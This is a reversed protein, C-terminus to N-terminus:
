ALPSAGEGEEDATLKEFAKQVRKYDRFTLARITAPAVNCLNAFLTVERLEPSSTSSAVALTDEVLPERMTLKDTSIGDIQVPASLTILETM